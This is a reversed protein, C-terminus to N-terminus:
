GVGGAMRPRWLTEELNGRWREGCDDDVGSISRLAKRRGVRAVPCTMNRGRPKEGGRRSAGVVAACVSNCGAASGPTRWTENRERRGSPGSPGDAARSGEIGAACVVGRLDERGLAGERSVAVGLPQAVDRQQGWATGRCLAEGVGAVCACSNGFRRFGHTLSKSANKGRCTKKRGGGNGALASDIRGHAESGGESGPM